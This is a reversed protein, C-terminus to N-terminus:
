EICIWGLRFPFWLVKEVFWFPRLVGSEDPRDTNSRRTGKPSTPGTLSGPGSTDSDTDLIISVRTDTERVEMDYSPVSSKESEIM